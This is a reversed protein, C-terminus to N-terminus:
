RDRFQGWLWNLYVLFLETVANLHLSLLRFREGKFHKRDSRTRNILQASPQMGILDHKLYGRAVGSNLQRTYGRALVTYQMKIEPYKVAVPSDGKGRKEHGSVERPLIIISHDWDGLVVWLVNMM